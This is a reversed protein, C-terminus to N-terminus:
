AAVVVVVVFVVVVVVVVFVDNSRSGYHGAFFFFFFADGVTPRNTKRREVTEDVGGPMKGAAHRELTEDPRADNGNQRGDVGRDPVSGRRGQPARHLRSRSLRWRSLLEVHRRIRRFPLRDYDIRERQIAARLSATSRQAM